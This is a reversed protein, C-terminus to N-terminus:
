CGLQGVDVDPQEVVALAVVHVQHRRGVDVPERHAGRGALDVGVQPEEDGRDDVGNLRVPDLREVVLVLGPGLDPAREGLDVVVEFGDATAVGYVKGGREAGLHELVPRPGVSVSALMGSSNMVSSRGPCIMTTPVLARPACMPPAALYACLWKPSRQPTPSPSLPEVYASGVILPM